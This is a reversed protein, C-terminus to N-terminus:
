CLIEEKRSDLWTIHSLLTCDVARISDLILYPLIWCRRTSWRLDTNTDKRGLEMEPHLSMIESYKGEGLVDLTAGELNMMFFCVVIFDALHRVSEPGADVAAAASGSHFLVLLTSCGVLGILISLLALYRKNYGRIIFLDSAVGIFPKLAFPSIIM